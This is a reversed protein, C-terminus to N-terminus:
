TIILLEFSNRTNDKGSIKKIIIKTKTITLLHVTKNM